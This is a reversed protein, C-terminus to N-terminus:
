ATGAASRMDMGVKSRVTLSAHSARVMNQGQQPGPAVTTEAMKALQNRPHEVGWAQQRASSIIGRRM